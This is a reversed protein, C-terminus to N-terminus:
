REGRDVEREPRADVDNSQILELLKRAESVRDAPVLLGVETPVGGLAGPGIGRSSAVSPVGHQDLVDRYMEVLAPSAGSVIEVWGRAAPASVASSARRSDRLHRMLWSWASRSFPRVVDRHPM